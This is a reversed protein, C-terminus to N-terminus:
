DFQAPCATSIFLNKVKDGLAPHAMNKQSATTESQPPWKITRYHCYRVRSHWRIWRATWDANSNSEPWCM